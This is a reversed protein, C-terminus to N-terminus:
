VLDGEKFPKFKSQIRQAMLTHALEYAALVENRQQNLQKLWESLSPINTDEIIYPITWLQYGFLLSFPTQKM